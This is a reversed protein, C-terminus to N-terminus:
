SMNRQLLKSSPQLAILLTISSFGSCHERHYKVHLASALLIRLDNISHTHTHTCHVLELQLCGIWVADGAEFSHTRMLRDIIICWHHIYQKGEESYVQDVVTKHVLTLGKTIHLHQLQM